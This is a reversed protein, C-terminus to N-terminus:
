IVEGIGKLPTLASQPVKWYPPPTEDLYQDIKGDQGYMWGVIYFIPATGVVLYFAEEDRDEPRLILSGRMLETHRVQLKGVDPAKFTNVSFDWYVGLAKALAIEACAAEIDTHWGFADNGVHNTRYFNGFISEIKRRTGVMSGIIVENRTLTIKTM